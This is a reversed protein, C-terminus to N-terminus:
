RNPNGIVEREIELTERMRKLGEPVNETTRKGLYYLASGKPPDSQDMKKPYGSGNNQLFFDIGGEIEASRQASNRYDDRANARKEM